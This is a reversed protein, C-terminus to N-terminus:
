VPRTLARLVVLWGFHGVIFLGAMIQLRRCFRPFDARYGSSLAEKAEENSIFGRLFESGAAVKNASTWYHSIHKGLEGLIYILFLCLFVGVLSSILEITMIWPQNLKDSFMKLSFAFIGANLTLIWTTQSWAHSKTKDAAEEYFKFLDIKEKLTDNTQQPQSTM